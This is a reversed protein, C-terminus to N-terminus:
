KSVISGLFHELPQSSPPFDDLVNVTHKPFHDVTIYFIHLRYNITSKLVIKNM